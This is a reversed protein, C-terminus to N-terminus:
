TSTEEEAREIGLALLLEEHLHMWITHYSDIRPSLFWEHEGDRVRRLCERLRPRYPEFREVTRGLRRVVPGAREDVEALRDIVSWDYAQDTHDNPVNGARMQWDTSVRLLEGNLPLFQDYARRAATEAESGAELRAWAAHVIRGDATLALLEGKRQALGADCLLAARDDDVGTM